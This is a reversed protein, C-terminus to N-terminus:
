YEVLVKTLHIESAKSPLRLLGFVVKKSDDLCVLIMWFCGVFNRTLTM